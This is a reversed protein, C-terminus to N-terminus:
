AERRPFLLDMAIFLLALVSFLLMPVPNFIPADFGELLSEVFDGSFLDFLLFLLRFM